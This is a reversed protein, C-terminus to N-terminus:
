LRCVFREIDPFLSVDFTWKCGISGFAKQLDEDKRLINYAKIKGIGFFSSTYDNGTFAHLAPLTEALQPGTTDYMHNGCLIRKKNGSGMKIYM